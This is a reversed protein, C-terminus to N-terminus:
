RGMAKAFIMQFKNEGNALAAISVGGVPKWGQLLAQTVLQQFDPPLHHQVVKYENM